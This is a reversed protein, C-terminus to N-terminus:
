SLHEKTISIDQKIQHISRTPTIEKHADMRGKYYALAGAGATIAAVILCSWHVAIGVSAIGFVLAQVALFAAILGLVGAISMWIGARFKAFLNESLEARALRLEKQVLDALDAVVDSLARPLTSNKLQEHAM